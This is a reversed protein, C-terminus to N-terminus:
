HLMHEVIDKVVNVNSTFSRVQSVMGKGLKTFIDSLQGTPIANGRLHHM